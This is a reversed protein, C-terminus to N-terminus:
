KGLYTGAGSAPFYSRNTEVGDTLVVKLGHEYWIWTEVMQGELRTPGVRSNPDGYTCILKTKEDPKQERYSGGTNSFVIEKDDFDYIWSKKMNEIMENVQTQEKGSLDSTTLMSGDPRWWFRIYDPRGYRAYVEQEAPTMQANEGPFWKPTKAVNMSFRHDLEVVKPQSACSSLVLSLGLMLLCVGYFKIPFCVVAPINM